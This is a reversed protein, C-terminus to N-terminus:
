YSHVWMGTTAEKARMWENKKTKKEHRLKKHNRRLSSFSPLLGIAFGKAEGHNSSREQMERVKLRKRTLSPQQKCATAMAVAGGPKDTLPTATAASISYLWRPSVIHGPM